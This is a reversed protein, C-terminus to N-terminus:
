LRILSLRRGSLKIGPGIGYELNADSGVDKIIVNAFRDADAFGNPQASLDTEHYLDIPVANTDTLQVM